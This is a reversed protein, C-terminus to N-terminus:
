GGEVHKKYLENVVELLKKSESSSLPEDFYVFVKGANNDVSVAIPNFGNSNLYEMLKVSDLPKEKLVEPKPIPIEYSM